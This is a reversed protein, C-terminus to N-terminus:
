QSPNRITRGSAIYSAKNPSDTRYKEAQQQNLKSLIALVPQAQDSRGQRRYAIALHSYVAPDQPALQRASELHMVADDLRGAALYLEGLALQSAAYNPREAVSKELAQQADAFVREDPTAGSRVVADGFITLLVYNEHGAQIGKRTIEIAGPLNGALLDNQGLAMYSIDTRPALKTAMEYDSKALDPQNQFTFFVGREYHLRASRPLNRLGVNLTEIGLDYSEHDMCADAVLLYLKEDLPTQQVAQQFAALAKQPQAMGIYAQALLNNVEATAHDGDKLSTLIGAADEYQGTAVYCLALDFNAAYEDAVRGRAALLHPIAGSFEGKHTLAIGTMLESQAQADLASQTLSRISGLGDRAYAPVRACMWFLSLLLAFSGVRRFVRSTSQKAPCM